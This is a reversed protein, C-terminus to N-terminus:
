MCFEAACLAGGTYHVGRTFQVRPPLKFFDGNLTKPKYLQM